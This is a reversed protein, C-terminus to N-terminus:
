CAASFPQAIFTKRSDPAVSARPLVTAHADGSDRDEPKEDSKM